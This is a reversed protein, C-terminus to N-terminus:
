PNAEEHVSLPLETEHCVVAVSHLDVTGQEIDYSVVADKCRGCFRHAGPKRGWAGNLQPVSGPSTAM